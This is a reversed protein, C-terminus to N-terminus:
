STEKKAPKSGIWKLRLMIIGGVDQCGVCRFRYARLLTKLMQRLANSSTM